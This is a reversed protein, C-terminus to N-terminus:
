GVRILEVRALDEGLFRKGVAAFREPSDTVFVRHEAPKRASEILGTAKLIEGVEKATSEASDILRVDSGVVESIVKKLLPYHTCGLVLTDIAKDKFGALYRRVALRAIEGKIIGEEVLPVLLPCAQEYVTIKADIAKIAATYARSKVTGETGIVGISGKKTAEVAAKAGPEVVGVIPMILKKRLEEIAYASATNCAIVLMKIGRTILFATNEVSYGTVTERSKTGYPVRATDGLYITAEGPLLAKIERLVTLGGIGSDFVGIANSAKM